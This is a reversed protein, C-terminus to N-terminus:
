RDPFDSQRVLREILELLENSNTSKSLFYDAGLELCRQQYQLYPYHTLMIVMTAPTNKKVERLVDMGSGGPMQVDLVILDPPEDRVAALAGPVDVALRVLGIGPIQSIM